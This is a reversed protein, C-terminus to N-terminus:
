RLSDLLRGAAEVIRSNAGEKLACSRAYSAVELIDNPAQPKDIIGQVVALMKRAEDRDSEKEKATLDDYPTDAQRQWRKVAWAPMTVTGDLNLTGKEFMYRMWGSWADDHAYRALKEIIEKEQADTM